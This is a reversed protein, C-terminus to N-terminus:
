RTLQAMIVSLDKMTLVCGRTFEVKGGRIMRWPHGDTGAPSKARAKSKEAALYAKQEGPAAIHKNGLVQRAQKADMEWLGVKLIDTGTPTEVVLDLKEEVAKKQESFPLAQALKIAPRTDLLLQPHLTGRGLAELNRLLKLGFPKDKMASIEAYVDVGKDLQEVVLKGAETFCEVGRLVLEVIKLIPNDEGNGKTLTKM